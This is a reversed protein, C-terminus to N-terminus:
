RSLSWFRGDVMWLIRCCFMETGEVSFGGDVVLAMMGGSLDHDDDLSPLMSGGPLDQGGTFSPLTSDDVLLAGVPMLVVSLVCVVLGERRRLFVNWSLVLYM